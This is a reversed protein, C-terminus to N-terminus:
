PRVYTAGDVINEELENILRLTEVADSLQQLDKTRDDVSERQREFLLM